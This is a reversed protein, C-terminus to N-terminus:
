RCCIALSACYRGFKLDRKELLPLYSLLTREIQEAEATQFAEDEAPDFIHRLTRGALYM